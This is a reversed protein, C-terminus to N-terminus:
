GEKNAYQNIKEFYFIVDMNTEKVLGFSKAIRYESFNENLRKIRDLIRERFDELSLDSKCSNCSQCCPLLNSEEDSGKPLHSLHNNQYRRKPTIHDLHFSEPLLKCGCYACRGNTKNLVRLRIQKKKGAIRESHTM